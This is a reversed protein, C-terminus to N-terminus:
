VRLVPRSLLASVHVQVLFRSCVSDAPCNDILSSQCLPMRTKDSVSRTRVLAHALVRPHRASPMDFSHASTARGSVAHPRRRHQRRPSRSRKQMSRECGGRAGYFNGRGSRRLDIEQRNFIKALQVLYQRREETHGNGRQALHPAGPDFLLRVTQLRFVNRMYAKGDRWSVLTPGM